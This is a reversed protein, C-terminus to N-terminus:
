RIYPKRIQVNKSLRRTQDHGRLVNHGRVAAGEVTVADVFPVEACRSSTFRVTNTRADATARWGGCISPGDSWTYSRATDNGKRTSITVIEVGGGGYEVFATYTGSPRTTSRPVNAVRVTIELTAPATSRVEVGRIDAVRRAARGKSMSVGKRTQYSVAHPDSQTPSPVVPRDARVAVEVDPAAATATSAPAGTAITAFAAIAVLTSGFKRM